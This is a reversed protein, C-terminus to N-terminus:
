TQEYNDTKLKILLDLHNLIYENEIYKWSRSLKFDM